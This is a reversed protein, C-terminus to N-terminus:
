GASETRALEPNRALEVLGEAYDEVAICIMKLRNDLSGWPRSPKGTVPHPAAEIDHVDIDFEFQLDLMKPTLEDDGLKTFTVVIGDDDLPGDNIKLDRITDKDYTGNVQEPRM